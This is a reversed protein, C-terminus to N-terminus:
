NMEVEEIEEETLGYLEYVMKDIIKDTDNIQNSLTNCESKYENFYDEWEDQQRLSLSIKQKRLEAAFGKFDQEDFKELAGTIKINEFNEKLRDIFRHRKVQLSENYFLMQDTLPELISLDKNTIPLQQLHGRKVQAMAKGIEPNIVNRYYWTQLKSNILALLGKLSLHQNDDRIVYLNDRAIFKKNDYTAILSDSTQRILLKEPSDFKASYRPEALWDGYSIWYNYNWYNTYRNILSGRLLPIFSDNKKSTSVFPQTKLIIETQPPNGKGKQFPKTGQAIQVLDGLEQFKSLKKKIITVKQTEYINVPLGKLEAWTKQEIIRKTIKNNKDIISLEFVSDSIPLKNQLIYIDTEVTADEFVFYSYHNISLITIETFVYNRIKNAFLLSLWTNPMIYGLIGKPKLWYNIRETFLLYSDLQYSQYIYNKNYFRIEESSFKAGYPPNGIVVDFGGKEFVQPFENQWDFAKDGAVEPDSILSNGCKINNNLDNLKRHPKATRLWLALKAIEVSEENIDVGFLNNELISNEISEFMDYQAGHIKANLEYILNHENILFDLAANLFAGSGCAPDCITLSLLWNRYATLKEILKKKTAKQRRKDAGYENEDIGLENKKETCLKGLTNEVIYTTIYRPTYFVGDKKRKSTKPANDTEGKTISQSIEEIETLSNEFIHGLINVDVETDFDYESLELINRELIDDDIIIDELVEDTKFLGGNYGFIDEKKGKHGENMYKFYMKFREYLPQYENLLDENRSNWQDIIRKVSNPPLLGKDESFFVFLFRDLLKQSKKFLLLKDYQPNREVLDAFLERKFQSYDKYFEKTIQDEKGISETKLQKPIDKEINEYAFCLWLTSFDELSLTFLNFEVYDIANDIYFRLKEFNSIIVYSAKRHYNKYGFAQSEVAKLDTTKSDKLEIVGVVEGNVLIAGDAKRANTENKQETILNYHPTPNLTYGLVKVFLERLFGEQFQEEKSNRINEQIDPNHFYGTYLQYAQKIKDSNAVFYKELIKNQFLSM